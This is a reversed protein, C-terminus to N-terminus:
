SECSFDQGSHGTYDAARTIERAKRGGKKSYDTDLVIATGQCDTMAEEEVWSM